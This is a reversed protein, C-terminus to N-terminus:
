EIQILIDQYFFKWGLAAGAVGGLLAGVAVKGQTSNTSLSTAAAILGAGGACTLGVLILDQAKRKLTVSTVNQSPINHIGDTKKLRFQGEEFVILKGTEIQGGRMAFEVPQNYWTVAIRQLKIVRAKQIDSQNASPSSDEARALGGLGPVMILVIGLVVVRALFEINRTHTLM